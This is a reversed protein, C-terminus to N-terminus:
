RASLVALAFASLSGRGRWVCRRTSETLRGNTESMPLTKGHGVRGFRADCIKAKASLEVFRLKVSM